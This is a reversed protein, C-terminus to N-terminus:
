SSRQKLERSKAKNSNFVFYFVLGVCLFTVGSAFDFFSSRTNGVRGNVAFFNPAFLDLFGIGILLVGVAINLWTATKKM